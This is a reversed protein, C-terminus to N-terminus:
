LINTSIEFMLKLYFISFMTTTGNFGGSHRKEVLKKHHLASLPLKKISLISANTIDLFIHVKQKGLGIFKSKPSYFKSLFQPHKLTQFNLAKYHWSPM